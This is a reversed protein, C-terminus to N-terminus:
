SSFIVMEARTQEATLLLLLPETNSCRSLGSYNIMSATSRKRQILKEAELQGMVSARRARQKACEERRKRADEISGSPRKGRLKAVSEFYQKDLIAIM